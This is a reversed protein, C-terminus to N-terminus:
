SAKVSKSPAFFVGGDLKTIWGWPTEVSVRKPVRAAAAKAARKGTARRLLGTRTSYVYRQIQPLLRAKRMAKVAAAGKRNVAAHARAAKAKSAVEVRKITGMQLRYTVPERGDTPHYVLRASDGPSLELMQCSSKRPRCTVDGSVSVDAAVAFVATNEDEVVGMFTFFPFTSSPLATMRKVDGYRKLKGAKGFHLSVRWTFYHVSPLSATPTSSPTSSPTVTAPKVGTPAGAAPTVTSAAAKKEAKPKPVRLQRFPDRVGGARVKAKNSVTTDLSVPAPKESVGAGAVPAVPAPDEGGASVVMPVAVLALVLAVAVPWLKKEVLDSWVSHLVSM